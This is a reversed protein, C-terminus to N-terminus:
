FVKSSKCFCISSFLFFHYFYAPYQTFTCYYLSLSVWAEYMRALNKSTRKSFCPFVISFTHPPAKPHQFDSAWGYTIHLDFHCMYSITVLCLTFQKPVLQCRNVLLLLWCPLLVQIKIAGQHRIAPVNVDKLSLDLKSIQDIPSFM